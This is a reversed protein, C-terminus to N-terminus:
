ELMGCANLHYTSISSAAMDSLQKRLAAVESDQGQSPRQVLILVMEEPLEELFVKSLRTVSGLKKKEDLSDLLIAVEDDNNNDLPIAVKWLTLKHAAFVGFEPNKAKILEKFAGITASADVDVPFANSSSMGDVLYWMKLVAM